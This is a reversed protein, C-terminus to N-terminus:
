YNKVLLVGPASVLGRFVITVNNFYPTTLTYSALINGTGVDRIQFAYNPNAAIAPFKIFGSYEKYALSTVASGNAQGTVNVSIPNSNPSLNIFRVGCTSDAYNTYSEKILIDDVSAPSSGSLFLSYNDGAATQITQDYYPSKPSAAPYLNLVSSGANMTLQSYNNNNVTMTTTNYNLASGGVVVNTM